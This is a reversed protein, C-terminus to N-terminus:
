LYNDRDQIFRYVNALFVIDVGDPVCPNDHLCQLTTINNLDGQEFRKDMYELMSVETDIAYVHGNPVAAAFLNTFYGTGAGIDAITHNQDLKLTALIHSTNQWEERNASDFIESCREPNAFSVPKVM